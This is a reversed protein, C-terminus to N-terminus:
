VLNLIVTVCQAHQTIVYPLNTHIKELSSM